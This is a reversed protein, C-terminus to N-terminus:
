AFVTRHVEKQLDKAKSLLKRVETSQPDLKIAQKLDEQALRHTSSPRAAQLGNVHESSPKQLHAQARRFLAKVNMQLRLHNREINQQEDWQCPVELDLMAKKYWRLRDVPAMLMPIQGETVSDVKVHFHTVSCPPQWPPRTDEPKPVMMSPPDMAGQLLGIPGGPDSWMERAGEPLRSSQFGLVPCCAADMDTCFVDLVAGPQVGVVAREIAECYMTRGVIFRIGTPHSSETNFVEQLKGGEGPTSVCWHATVQSGERVQQGYGDLLLVRMLTKERDFSVDHPRGGAREAAPPAPSLM